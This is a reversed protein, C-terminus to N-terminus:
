GNLAALARRAERGAQRFRVLRPDAALRDRRRVYAWVAAFLALPVLQVLLFWARQYLHAGRARWAGPADKIYVIVRGLPQKPANEATAPQNADVVEPKAERGARVALAKPGRTITRYAHAAPDFFSFRLAPLEHVGAVKPIVVQEFVRRDTGDEGK